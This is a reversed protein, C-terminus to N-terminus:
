KPQQRARASKEKQRNRWLDFVTYYELVDLKKVKELESFQGDAMAWWIEEWERRKNKMQVLVPM